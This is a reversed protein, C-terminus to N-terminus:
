SRVARFIWSFKLAPRTTREFNSLSNACLYDIATSTPDTNAVPKEAKKLSLTKPQLYSIQPKRLIEQFDVRVIHSWIRRELEADSIKLQHRDLGSRVHNKFKTFITEVAAELANNSDTETTAPLNTYQCTKGREEKHLLGAKTLREAWDDGVYPHMEIGYYEAVDAAFQKSSFVARARREILPAFLPM